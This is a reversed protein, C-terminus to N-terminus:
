SGGIIRESAKAKAVDSFTAVFFEFDEAEIDGSTPIRYPIHIPVKPGSYISRGKVKGFSQQATKNKPRMNDTM